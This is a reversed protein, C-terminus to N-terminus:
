LDKALKTVRELILRATDTPISFKQKMISLLERQMDKQAIPKTWFGVKYVHHQMEEVLDITMQVLQEQELGLESTEHKVIDYFPIEVKLHLGTNDEDETRGDKAQEM